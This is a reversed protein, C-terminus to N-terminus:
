RRVLQVTSKGTDVTGYGRILMKVSAPVADKRDTKNFQLSISGVRLASLGTEDDASLDAGLLENAFEVAARKLFEPIADSALFTDRGNVPVYQRPWEM